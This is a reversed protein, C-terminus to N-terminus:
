GVNAPGDDEITADVNMEALVKDTTRDLCTEELSDAPTRLSQIMVAAEVPSLDSERRQRLVSLLRGNLRLEAEAGNPLRRSKGNVLPSEPPVRGLRLRNTFEEWLVGAVAAILLV